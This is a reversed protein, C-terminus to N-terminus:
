DRNTVNVLVLPDELPLKLLIANGWEIFLTTYTPNYPLIAHSWPDHTEVGHVPWKRMFLYHSKLSKHNAVHM